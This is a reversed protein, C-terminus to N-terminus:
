QAGAAEKAAAAIASKSMSSTKRKHVRKQVGMPAAPSVPRSSAEAQGHSGPTTSHEPVHGSLDVPPAHMFHHQGGKGNKDPFQRELSQWDASKLTTVESIETEAESENDETYINEGLPADEGGNHVGDEESWSRKQVVGNEDSAGGKDPPRSDKLSGNANEARAMDQHSGTPDERTPTKSGDDSDQDLMRWLNKGQNLCGVASEREEPKMRLMHQGVLYNLGEQEPARNGIARFCEEYKRFLAVVGACYKVGENGKLDPPRNPSLLGAIVLGLAWLDVASTYRKRAFMEPAMYPQTGSFTKLIDGEKAIGFDALRFHARSDCLINAPKIDRHTIGFDFHLYVLAHLMQRLVHSIERANFPVIKHEEELNGKLALGMALFPKDDQGFDLLKVINAQHM